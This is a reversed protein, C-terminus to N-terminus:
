PTGIESQRRQVSGYCPPPTPQASSRRLDGYMLKTKVSGDGDSLFGGLEEGGAAEKPAASAAKKSATSAAVASAVM